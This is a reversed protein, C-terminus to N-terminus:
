ISFAFLASGIVVLVIAIVQTLLEQRTFYEKFIRPVIRSLVYAFLFILAFQIGAMANVVTVSGIAISYQILLVGLVGLVKDSIIFTMTNKETDKQKLSKRVSPMLFAILGVIGATAKTWIIGTLFPYLDYIYKSSVHAISFLIGSLIAWLFGRHFGSMKRSKQMMCGACLALRGSRELSIKRATRKIQNKDYKTERPNKTSPM